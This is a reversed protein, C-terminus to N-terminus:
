WRACSWSEGNRGSPAISSRWSATCNRRRQRWGSVPSAAADLLTSAEAYRAAEEEMGSLGEDYLRRAEALSEVDALAAYLVRRKKKRM